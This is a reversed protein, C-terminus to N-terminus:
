ALSQYVKGMLRFFGFGFAMAFVIYLAMAVTELFSKELLSRYIAPALYCSFFSGALMLGQFDFGSRPILAVIVFGITPLLFLLFMGDKPFLHTLGLVIVLWIALFACQAKFLVGDIDKRSTYSIAMPGLDM